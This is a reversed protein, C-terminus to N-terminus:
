LAPDLLFLDLLSFYKATLVLLLSLGDLSGETIWDKKVYCGRVRQVQAQVHVRAPSPLLM